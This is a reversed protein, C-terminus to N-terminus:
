LIGSSYFCHTDSPVKTLETKLWHSFCSAQNSHATQMVEVQPGSLRSHNGGGELDPDSYGTRQIFKM